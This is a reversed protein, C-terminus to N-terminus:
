ESAERSGQEGPGPEAPTPGRLLQGPDRQLSESLRRLSRATAELEASLAQIRPLTTGTVEGVAAEGERSFESVNAGAAELTEAMRSFDELTQNARRLVPGLEQAADAGSAAARDVTDLTTRLRRSTETMDATLAELNAMIHEFREVNEPSLLADIREGIRELTDMGDSVVQDLRTILSQEYPIVPYPNDAPARLPPAAREGGTLEVYAIGTIGRSKLSAVTGERIPVDAEVQIVTHVNSEGQLSLRVDVVRGVEVGYYVVTSDSGLGLASEGMFISYRRYDARDFGAGLWLGAVILGSGLVVVFLGVLAYSVRPEM